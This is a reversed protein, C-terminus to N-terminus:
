SGGRKSYKFHVSQRTIGLVDGSQQWSWGRLRAQVVQHAEVQEAVHRLALMARLGEALDETALATAMQEQKM